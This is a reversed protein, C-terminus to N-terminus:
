ELPTAGENRRRRTLMVTVVDELPDLSNLLCSKGSLSATVSEDISMPVVLLFYDRSTQGNLARLEEELETIKKAIRQNVCKSM